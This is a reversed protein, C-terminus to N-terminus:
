SHSVPIQEQRLHPQRDGVDDLSRTVGFGAPEASHREDVVELSWPQPIFANPLCHADRSPYGRLGLPQSDTMQHEAVRKAMRCYQGFLRDGQRLGRVAPELEAQAGARPRSLEGSEIDALFIRYGAALLELPMQAQDHLIPPPVLRRIISSTRLYASQHFM